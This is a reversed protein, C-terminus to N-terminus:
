LLRTPADVRNMPKHRTLPARQHHRPGFRANRQRRLDTKTSSFRMLLSIFAFGRQTILFCSGLSLGWKREVYPGRTRRDGTELYSITQQGKCEPSIYEAGCATRLVVRTMQRHYSRNHSSLHLPGAAHRDHSSACRLDAISFRLLRLLWLDQLLRQEQRRERSRELRSRRGRRRPPGGTFPDWRSCVRPSCLAGPHRKSTALPPSVRAARHL